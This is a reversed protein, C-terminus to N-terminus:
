KKSAAMWWESVGGGYNGGGVPYWSDPWPSVMVFFM